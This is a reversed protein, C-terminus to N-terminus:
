RGDPLSPGAAATRFAGVEVGRSLTRRSTRRELLTLVLLALLGGVAGVAFTVLPAGGLAALRLLPSDGQSFALRGWPFGGFPTRDRLAEQLVWVSGAVAPWSWRWRDVVPSSLAAVAALLALYASEGAPLFLWVSGVYGGVWTLLPIFLALGGIM